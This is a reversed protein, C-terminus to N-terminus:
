NGRPKFFFGYLYEMQQMLEIPRSRNAVVVNGAVGGVKPDAFHAVLSELAGVDMVSDADITVIIEGTARKLGRNMARAKGGNSLNLYKLDVGALDTHEIFNSITAHTSDTSGDNIVILQLKPYQTNIVSQVTKLIGVEENWAPILVSVSPQLNIQVNKQRLWKKVSYFPACCLQIVYKMLLPLLLIFMAARLVDLEAVPKYTHTFALYVIGATAAYLVAFFAAFLM